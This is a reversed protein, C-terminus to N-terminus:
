SVRCKALITEYGVSQEDWLVAAAAKASVPVTAAYFSSFGIYGGYANKANLEGCLGLTGESDRVVRLSRFRAAEPDRLNSDVARQYVAIEAQTAKVANVTPEPKATKASTSTITESPPQYSNYSFQSRQSGCGAVLLLVALSLVIKRM